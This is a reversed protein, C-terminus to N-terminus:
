EVFKRSRDFICSYSMSLILKILDKPLKSLYCIANNENKCYGIWVVREIDWKLPAGFSLKLCSLGDIVNFTQSVSLTFWVTQDVTKKRMVHKLVYLSKRTMDTCGFQNENAIITRHYFLQLQNKVNMDNFNQNTMLNYWERTDFDFVITYSHCVAMPQDFANALYLRQPQFGRGNGFDVNVNLYFQSNTNKSNMEEHNAYLMGGILMLYRNNVFQIDHYELWKNKFCQWFKSNEDLHKGFTDYDNIVNEKSDTEKPVFILKSVTRPNINNNDTFNTNNTANPIALPINLIEFLQDFYSKGVILLHLEEAIEEKANENVDVRDDVMTANDNNIQADVISITGISQHPQAQEKSKPKAKTMSQLSKAVLKINSMYTENDRMPFIKCINFKLNPLWIKKITIPQDLCFINNNVEINIYHIFIWNSCSSLVWKKYMIQANPSNWITWSYDYPQWQLQGNSQFYFINDFLKNGIIMTNFDVTMTEVDFLCIFEKYDIRPINQYHDGNNTIIFGGIMLVKNSKGFLSEDLAFIKYVFETIRQNEDMAINKELMKSKLQKKFLAFPCGNYETIMNTKTNCISFKDTDHPWGFNYKKTKTKNKSIIFLFKENSNPHKFVDFLISNQKSLPITKITQFNSKTSLNPNANSYEQKALSEIAQKEQLQVKAFRRKRISDIVCCPLCTICGLITVVVLAGILRMWSFEFDMTFQPWSITSTFEYWSFLKLDFPSSEQDDICSLDDNNCSM